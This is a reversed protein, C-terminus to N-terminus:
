GIVVEKLDERTFDDDVIILYDIIDEGNEGKKPVPIEKTLRGSDIKFYYKETALIAEARELFKNKAKKPKSKPEPRNSEIIECDSDNADPPAGVAGAKAMAKANPGGQKAGIQGRMNPPVPIQARQKAAVNIPAHQPRPPVPIQAKGETKPMKPAPLDSADFEASFAVDRRRRPASSSTGIDPMGSADFEAQFAMGARPNRSIGQTLTIGGGGLARNRSPDPLASNLARQVGEKTELSRIFTNSNKAQVVNPLPPLNTSAFTTSGGKRMTLSQGTGPPFFTTHLAVGAFGWPIDKIAAVKTVKGIAAGRICAEPNKITNREMRVWINGTAKRVEACCEILLAAQEDDLQNHSLHIERVKKGLPSKLYAIIPAVSTLKNEYFKLRVSSIKQVQLMEMILELGNNDLECRSAEVNPSIIVDYGVGHHQRAYTLSQTERKIFDPTILGRQGQMNWSM